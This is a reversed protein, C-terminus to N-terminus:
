PVDLQYTRSGSCSSASTATVVFVWSGPTAPTGSLVGATSLSLGPPLMGSTVNFAFPPSSGAAALNQLYPQGVAGDPLPSRPELHVTPTSASVKFSPESVVTNQNDPHPDTRSEVRFWYTTSCSLGTVNMSSVTKDSTVGFQTWPGSSSTAYSVQYGGTGQTYLIPSWSVDVSSETPIGATVATPAITQTSEWDGGTQKLTLFARLEGDGSHLANWRIDLGIPPNLIPTSDPEAATVPLARQDTFPVGLVDLFRITEPIDGWLRNGNLLLDLLTSVHGIGRPIPGDLQNNQLHLKRVSHSLLGVEPPIGGSLQNDNLRLENISPLLFLEPPISGSLQNHSLDLFILIPLSGLEPPITGTLQNDNLYMRDLASLNGLEPPISGTLDNIRLTLIRLVPLAGLEPPISGTLQNESLDLGELNLLNGLEPPIDGTLQNHYLSLVELTGINGLEPPIPGSLLNEGAGLIRLSPLNGLESPISTLQNIDLDLLQLSTLDEVEPPLYGALNNDHLDLGEVTTQAPDCTVREWSCETGPAGLWGAQEYWGPGNTANYIAILADRESQPIAGQAPAALTFLLVLCCALASQKM